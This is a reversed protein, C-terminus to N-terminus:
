KLLVKAANIHQFAVAFHLSTEGTICVHQADAGKRLLLELTKEWGNIAAYHLVSGF